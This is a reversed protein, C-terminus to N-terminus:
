QVMAVENLQLTPPYSVYRDDKTHHLGTFHFRNMQHYKKTFFLYYRSLNFMVLHSTSTICSKITADTFKQCSYFPYM